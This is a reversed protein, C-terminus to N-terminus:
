KATEQEGATNEEYEQKEPEDELACPADGSYENGYETKGGAAHDGNAELGLPGGDEENDNQTDEIHKGVVPPAHVRQM